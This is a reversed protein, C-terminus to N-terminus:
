AWDLVFAFGWGGAPGLPVLMYEPEHRWIYPDRGLIIPVLPM